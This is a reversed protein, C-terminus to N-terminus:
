RPIQLREGPHILEPNRKDNLEAIEIWRGANGLLKAAISSLSDGRKVVYTNRPAVIPGLPTTGIIPLTGLGRKKRGKRKSERAQKVPSIAFNGARSYELVSINMAQRNRKGRNNFFPTGWAIGSIVWLVDTFPISGSIKVVPPDSSENSRALRMIKRIEPEVNGGRKKTFEDFLIPISMEILPRGRWETLESRKPRPIKEWGGVGGNIVPSGFGLMAKVSIAPDDSRFVVEPEPM